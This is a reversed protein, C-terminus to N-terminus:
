RKQVFQLQVGQASSPEVTRWAAGDGRQEAGVKAGKQALLKATAALDKVGIGLQYPAEGYRDLFRSIEGTGLPSLFELYCNALQVMARRAGLARVEQVPTAKLDFAKAWQSAAAGADRVALSFHHVGVAGNAHQRADPPDQYREQISNNHQVLFTESGPTAETPIVAARWSYGPKGGTGERQGAQPDKIAVGRARLSAVAGEISRTGMAFMYLGERSDLFAKMTPRAPLSPDIIGILELYEQTLAIIRNATARGPHRAEPTLTFGLADFSRSAQALDRVAILVHDVYFDAM